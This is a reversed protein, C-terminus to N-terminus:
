EQVRRYLQRGYRKEGTPQIFGENILIYFTRRVTEDLAKFPRDKTLKYEKIAASIHTRTFSKHRMARIAEKAADQVCPLKDHVSLFADSRELREISIMNRM